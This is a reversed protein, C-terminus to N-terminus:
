LVFEDASTKGNGSVVTGCFKGFDVQSRSDAEQKVSFLKVPPTLRGGSSKEGCANLTETSSVAVNVAFSRTNQAKSKTKMEPEIVALGNAEGGM